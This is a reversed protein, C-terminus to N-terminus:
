RIFVYVRQAMSHLTSYRNNDCAFVRYNVNFNLFTRIALFVTPLNQNHRYIARFLWLLRVEHMSVIRLRDNNITPPIIFRGYTCLVLWKMRGGESDANNACRERRVTHRPRRAGRRGRGATTSPAANLTSDSTARWGKENCHHLTVRGSSISCRSAAVASVAAWWDNSPSLTSGTRYPALRILREVKGRLAEHTWARLTRDANSEAINNTRFVNWQISNSTVLM